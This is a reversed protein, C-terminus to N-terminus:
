TEHARLHTYSVAVELQVGTVQFTANLTSIVSVSGTSKYYNGTQWQNLTSTQYTSGNGLDFLIAFGQTNDLSPVQGTDGTATITKYEWTNASNITYNFTYSRYTTANYARLAGSFTGTLSSKVWFSFTVTKAASTGYAFDIINQGEILQYIAFADGVAPSAKATTVTCKLSSKLGSPADTVQQLSAIGTGSASNLTQAAWRDVIYTSANNVTVSAGANRQDFEMAGNIIRNRTGSIPGSNLSSVTADGLSLQASSGASNYFQVIGSTTSTISSIGSIGTQSIIAM